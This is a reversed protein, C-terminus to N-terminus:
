HPSLQHDTLLLATNSEFLGYMTLRIFNRASKKSLFFDVLKLDLDFPHVANLGSESVMRNLDM